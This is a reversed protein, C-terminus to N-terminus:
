ETQRTEGCIELDWECRNEVDFAQIYTEELPIWTNRFKRAADPGNRQMIREMQTDPRVNLFAKVDMFDRLAPHCSYAGEVIIVPSPVFRVPEGLRMERCDFPRYERLEGRRLPLMVEEAFREYDINGGPEQYREPTRQASRLFFDDMHIVSWGYAQSLKAALTSKGSACRGELAVIVQEQHRALHQIEEVFAAYCRRKEMVRYAPQYRARYSESHSVVPYGRARYDRLAEELAPADFSFLGSRAAEELMSFKEELRDLTGTHAEASRVFDLFLQDLAYRDPNVGRLHVRIIGSGVNEKWPEDRFPNERAETELYARAEEVNRILHGGGFESQYVLKIADVPEMVYRRAQTSLMKGFDERETRHM